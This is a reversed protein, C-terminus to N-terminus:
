SFGIMLPSLAVRAEEMMQLPESLIVKEQIRVFISPAQYTVSKKFSPFYADSVLRTFDTSGEMLFFPILCVM